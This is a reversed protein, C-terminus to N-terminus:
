TDLVYSKYMALITNASDRFTVEFWFQNPPQIFDQEHSLAYGEASWVSGAAAVSDQYVGDTNAGGSFLGYTKGVYRGSHTLVNSGGGVGGNYYLTNTSEVARNGYGTWSTLDGTEFGTNGLVNTAAYCVSGISLTLAAALAFVVHTYIKKNNNGFYNSKTM